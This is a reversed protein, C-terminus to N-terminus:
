IERTMFTYRRKFGYQRLAKEWGRRGMQEIRNLKNEKGWSELFQVLGPMWEDMDSGGLAVVRLARIRPYNVFECVCCAIIGDKGSITTLGMTENEIKEHIDELNIENESHELAKQIMPAVVPWYSELKDRTVYNIMTNSKGAGM